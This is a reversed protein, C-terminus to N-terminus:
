FTAIVRVTPRWSTALFLFGPSKRILTVSSVVIRSPATAQPSSM